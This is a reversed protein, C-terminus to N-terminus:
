ARPTSPAAGRPYKIRKHHLSVLVNAMAQQVRHLEDLTLPAEDLQREALIRDVTERVMAQFDDDTAGDMARATAEVQDAIMLLATEKSRPCPGPYHFLAADVPGGHQRARALFYPMAGTGHHELVGDLILQGLKQQKVMEAGDTVHARLIRASEAPALGDHPNAGRQNEVFFEPAETKGVDHYMACVMVQLPNAGVERAAAEALMGVGMSHQYTGPAAAALKRLLARNPHLLEVLSISTVFGFVWEVVPTLALMLLGSLLGGLGGFGATVLVPVPRLSEVPGLLAVAFGSALGVAGTLLTARVIGKRRTCHAVRHQGVLGILFQHAVLLAGGPAIIAYSVCLIVLLMAAGGLHLCFRALMVLAAGPFLLSAAVEPVIATDATLRLALGHWGRFAAVGLVMASAFFLFDRDGIRTGPLSVDLIWFGLVVLLFMLVSAGALRAARGGPQGAEAVARLVRLTEETVLQGEGIILQNRRLSLSVPLVADAAAAQQARTADLDLRLNARLGARVLDLAIERAPPDLDALLTPAREALRAETVALPALARPQEITREARSAASRVLLRGARPGPDDPTGFVAVRLRDADEVIPTRYAEDVLALAGELVGGDFRRSVLYDRQAPTLRVGSALEFAPVATAAVAAARREADVAAQRASRARPPSAADGGPPVDVAQFAERAGAFAAVLRSAMARPMEDDEVAVPVAQLRALERKRATAAEDVVSLDFPARVTDPTFDGLALGAGRWGVDVTTLLGLVLSLLLPLGFRSVASRSFFSAPRRSSSEM